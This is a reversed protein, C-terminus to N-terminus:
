ASLKKEVIGRVEEESLEGTVLKALTDKKEPNYAILRITNNFVNEIQNGERDLFELRVWNNGRKFGEIYLPRWDDVIFSEGNVTVRIQEDNLGKQAAQNLYFDLMIPEASYTGQPRSYALLPLNSDPNNKNTKTLIHFTTQAYAEKNKFSEHWPRSAFVRLTHTGPALNELVFPQETDYIAQYPENDLILHLHPGLGFEENKFIPLNKVKLRVEIKNENYTKERKPNLISVQPRYKELSKGLKQIVQPPAVESLKDTTTTAIVGKTISPPSIEIRDSLSIKGCGFLSLSLCIVLLYSFITKM